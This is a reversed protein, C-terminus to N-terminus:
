YDWRWEIGVNGDGQGSSGTQVKVNPAIEVEVRAAGTNEAAGNEIEVYVRDTVYKGAKIKSSSGDATEDVGLVDVGLTNRAKDLIGGGAGTLNAVASALEIQQSTTLRQSDQGFMVRSLIESEPLPPRSILKVQPKSARGTISIIATIGAGTYESPLNLLPDLDESGIFRVSGSKLVFQKGALSFGGRVPHLEGSIVPKGSPGTIKLLGAWESDLGQGRVFVRGPMRLGLDLELFSSTATEIDDGNGPTAGPHNIEIVDIEEVIPASNDIIQAEVSDTILEGTIQAATLKGTIALAGSAIANLEDLRVLAVKKLELKLDVPLGSAPDLDITGEARIRGKDGDTASGSATLRSNDAVVVISMDSVLTETAYYQYIGQELKVTGSIGPADLTGALQIEADILGELQSGEISLLPELPEISGRWTLRGSLTDTPVFVPVTSQATLRLPLAANLEFTSDGLGMISAALALQGGDWNGQISGSLRPIKLGAPTTQGVELLNLQLNGAPTAGTSSLEMSGSLSGELQAEPYLLDLLSLPLNDLDVIADIGGTSMGLRIRASGGEASLSMGDIEFSRPTFSLMAPGDLRLAHGDMHTNLENLTVQLGPPMWSLAGSAALELRTPSGGDANLTFVANRMDEADIRLSLRDLYANTMMVGDAQLSVSGGPSGIPDRIRAMLAISRANVLQSEGAGIAGASLQVSLQAAQVNSTEEMLLEFSASGSLESGAIYSWQSLSEIDGSVKGLIPGNQLPIRLEGIATTGGAHLELGTLEVREFNRVDFATTGEVPGVLAQEATVWVRGSPASAVNTAEFKVVASGADFDAMSVGNLYATGALTPNATPGSASGEVRFSGIVGPLIDGARGIDIQYDALFTEMGSSLGLNGNLKIADSDATLRSIELAGSGDVSLRADVKLEPGILRQAISDPFRLRELDARVSATFGESMRKSQITSQIRAAGGQVSQSLARFRALEPLEASIDLSTAPAQPDEAGHWADPVVRGSATVSASDTSVRARTLDISQNRSDLRMEIAWNLPGALMAQLAEDGSDISAFRGSATVTQPLLGDQNLPRDFTLGLEGNAELGHLGGVTLDRISLMSARFEADIKPQLPPGTAHASLVIDNASVSGTQALLWASGKESFRVGANLDVNSPSLSGALDLVAADGALRVGTLQVTQFDASGAELTFSLGNGLLSKLSADLFHAVDAKGDAVLRYGVAGKTLQFEGTFRAADGGVADIGGHVNDIPGAANLTVSIGKLDLARSLAGGAPAHADADLELYNRDPDFRAELSAEGKAGDSREVTLRTYVKGDAALKSDGAAQLTVSQGLIPEALTLNDLAFEDLDISFPLSPIAPADASDTEASEPLRSVLIDAASIRPIHLRGSLLEWPRWELKASGLRIWEGQVDGVVIDEVEINHPLDGSIRGISVTTDASSLSGSVLRALHARGTESELYFFACAVALLVSGLLAIAATVAGRLLRRSLSM